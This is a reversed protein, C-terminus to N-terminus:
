LLAGNHVVHHDRLWGLGKLVQKSVERALMYRVEPHGQYGRLFTALDSWMLELVLCVHKGNPGILEFHDLLSVVHASTTQKRIELLVGLEPSPKENALVKVAVARGTRLRNPLRVQWNFTSHRNQLGFRGQQEMDSSESYKIDDMM